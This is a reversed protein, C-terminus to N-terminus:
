SLRPAGSRRQRSRQRQRERKADAYSPQPAERQMSDWYRAQRDPDHDQSMFDQQQRWTPHSPPDEYRRQQQHTLHEAETYLAQWALYWPQQQCEREWSDWRGQRYSSGGSSSRSRPRHPPYLDQRPLSHDM